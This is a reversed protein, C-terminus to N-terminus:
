DRGDLLCKNEIISGRTFNEKSFNIDALNLNEWGSKINKWHISDESWEPIEFIKFGLNQSLLLLKKEIISRGNLKTTYINM